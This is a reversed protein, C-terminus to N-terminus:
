RRSWASPIGWAPLGVALVKVVHARSPREHHLADDPILAPPGDDAAGHGQARRMVHPAWRGLAWGIVAAAAVVAPFAVGVVALALFAAVAVAIFAPHGLARGGVKYVAQAVIALVAPALPAFLATVLTSDGATVYVASLGLLAVV